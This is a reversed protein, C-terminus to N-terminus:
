TRTVTRAPIEVSTFRFREREGNLQLGIEDEKILLFAAASRDAEAEVGQSDQTYQKLGLM